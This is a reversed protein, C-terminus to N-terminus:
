KQLTQEFAILRAISLSVFHPKILCEQKVDPHVVTLGLYVTYINGSTVNISQEGSFELGKESM